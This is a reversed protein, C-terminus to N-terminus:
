LEEKKYQAREDGLPPYREWQELPAVLSSGIQWLSYEITYYAYDPLLFLPAKNDLRAYPMFDSSIEFSAILTDNRDFIDIKNEYGRRPPNIDLIRNPAESAEMIQQVLYEMGLLRLRDGFTPNIYMYAGEYKDEVDNPYIKEEWDYIEPAEYPLPDEILRSVDFDKLCGSFPIVVIVLLITVIIKLLIKKM